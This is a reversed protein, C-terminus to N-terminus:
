DTRDPVGASALAILLAKQVGLYGDTNSWWENLSHAGAGQGGRGITTAPIGRAIPVNADTSGAALEPIVGFYRTAALARQILPTEPEIMGSPRNGISKVTVSLPEGRTLLQNQEVLALQVASQLIADIEDLRDPNESRMDIEAWSEFPIANVSTGGGIRGINYTTRPGTTVFTSAENDFFHIARALAHAPNALGFASWSHGGAGRFTVRYRHSGIAHNLVRKFSGGDIAILEDIRPGGQRFLNKVGRLDGLGEEGVTAVFLLDDVTEVEASRMARIMTLLLVLGRTDDGIGPAYLKGDEQRVTVETGEPFVTDLHAVIAITRNGTRGPWRSIVNGVNDIKTDQMGADILKEAYRRARIEEKFPPAPIETLEILEADSEQDLTEIIRLAESVEPRAALRKIELDFDITSGNALGALFTLFVTVVSIFNNTTM